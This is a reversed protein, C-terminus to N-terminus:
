NNACNNGKENLTSFAQVRNICITKNIATGRHQLALRMASMRVNNMFITVKSGGSYFSIETPSTAAVSLNTTNDLANGIGGIETYTPRGVIFNEFFIHKDHNDIDRCLLEYSGSPQIKIQWYKAAKDGCKKNTLANSRAIAFTEFIKEVTSNYLSRKYTSMINPAAALSVIAIFAFVVLLELLSFGASKKNMKMVKSNVLFFYM